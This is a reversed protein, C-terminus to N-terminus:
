RKFMSQSSIFNKAYDTLFIEEYFEPADPYIEWLMGLEKLQEFEKKNLSKLDRKM